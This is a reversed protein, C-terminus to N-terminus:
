RSPMITVSNMAPATTSSRARGRNTSAQAAAVTTSVPPLAAMTATYAPADSGVPSKGVPNLKASGATSAWFQVLALTNTDEAAARPSSATHTPSARAARRQPVRAALADQANCAPSAAPSAATLRTATVWNM